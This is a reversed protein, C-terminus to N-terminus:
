MTKFSEAGRKGCLVDKMDTYLQAMRVPPLAPVDSRYRSDDPVAIAVNTFNGRMTGLWNAGIREFDKDCNGTGSWTFETWSNATWDQMAQTYIATNDSNDNARIQLNLFAGGLTMLIALLYMCCSSICFCKMKPQGCCEDDDKVRQFDDDNKLAYGDNPTDQYPTGM